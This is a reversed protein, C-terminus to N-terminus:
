FPFIFNHPFYFPYNEIKFTKKVYKEIQVILIAIYINQKSLLTISGKESNVFQIEAKWTRRPHVLRGWLQLEFSQIHVNILWNIM